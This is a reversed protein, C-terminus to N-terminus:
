TTRNPTSPQHLRPGAINRFPIANSMKTSLGATFASIQEHIYMLFTNSKWRGHKKIAEPSVGNLHMAMAGGARLSHSSVDDRTYGLKTLGIAEAADKVAKNIDRQNIYRRKGSQYYDFIYSKATGGHSLIHHVRRALSKIPSDQDGTCENHITQGKVGNKQNTITLTAEQAQLLASLPSDTPILNGHQDRFTVHCVKFPCTRRKRPDTTFAYEGVRLLYYFAINILDAIALQKPSKTPNRKRRVQALLHHPLTVPVALQPLSPPDEKRYSEVQLKLRYWYTEYKAPIYTPNDLGALEFTKGVARLAEQVSGVRVQNGRGANGERVWSAFNCIHDVGAQQSLDNLFPEVQHKWCFHQWHAWYRLRVKATQDVVGNACARRTLSYLHALEAQQKAPAHAM